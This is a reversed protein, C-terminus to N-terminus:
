EGKRENEQKAVKEMFEESFKTKEDDYSAREFIVAEEQCYPCLGGSLRTGCDECNSM